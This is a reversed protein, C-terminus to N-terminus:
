PVFVKIHSVTKGNKVQNIEKRKKNNVTKKKLYLQCVVNYLPLADLTIIQSVYGHLLSWLLKLSCGDDWMSLLFFIEKNHASKSNVRKIIKMYLM